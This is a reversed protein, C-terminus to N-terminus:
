KSFEEKLKEFVDDDNKFKVRNKCKGFDRCVSKYDCYNCPSSDSNTYPPNISIDGKLIASSLEKISRRVSLRLLRFQEESAKGSKSKEQIGVYSPEDDMDLIIDSNELVLGKMAYRGKLKAEIENQSLINKESEMSSSIVCYLVGAPKNKSGCLADLYTILQLNESNYIDKIKLEKSGTKYDIIRLYKCDDKTFTDARDIKGTIRIKEGTDTTLNMESIRDSDFNIEFGEPRFKSHNFRNLLNYLNDSLQKTLKSLTYKFRPSSLFMGNLFEPAEAKVARETMEACSVRSVKDWANNESVERVCRELISHVLVGIDPATMSYVKRPRLKLNYNLFYSFACKSYCELKSVSGAFGNEYLKEVSERSLAVDSDKPTKNLSMMLMPKWHEKSIFWDYISGTPIGERLLKEFTYYPSGIKPLETIINTNPFIRCVRSIVESPATATGDTNTTRYSFYLRKSPASFVKYLIQQEALARHKKSNSLEIGLGELIDRDAEDFLGDSSPPPPFEGSCVGVAFLTNINGPVFRQADSVTVCDAVPPVSGVTCEEIGSKLVNMFKSFSCKTEGSIKVAEDLMNIFMNWIQTYEKATQFRDQSNLESVIDKLKIYVGFDCLLDFLSRAHTEFSHKGKTKERFNRLPKLIANRTRNVTDSNEGDKQFIKETHRNWLEDDYLKKGYLGYALIFNEFIDADDRSVPVFVSKILGSVADYSYGYEFVDAIAYVFVILANSSISEKNDLFVPIDNNQFVREIVKKYEDANRYCISIDKYRMGEERCLRIIEQAVANVESYADTMKIVTVDSSESKKPPYSFYNLSLHAPASADADAEIKEATYDASDSILRINKVTQEFCLLADRELSDTSAAIYVECYKIMLKILLREQNTFGSFKSIIVVSNKLSYLGPNQILLKYAFTLDDDSDVGFDSSKKNYADYISYFDTLKEKLIGESTDIKSKIFEASLAAHKFESVTKVLSTAFGRKDRCSDYITLGESDIIKQMLMVKSSASLYPATVIGADRFIMGSLRRFSIVEFNTKTADSYFKEASLTFQEPVIMFANKDCHAIIEKCRRDLKKNDTGYFIRLSM